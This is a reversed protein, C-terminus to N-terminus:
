DEGAVNLYENGVKKVMRRTIKFPKQLISELPLLETIDSIDGIQFEFAGFPNLAENRVGFCFRFEHQWSYEKGKRFLGINGSFGELDLYEVLGYGGQFYKSGYIYPNKSIADTICASLASANRILLMHSGFWLLRKDLWLEGNSEGPIRGTEDDALASFCFIMVNSADPIEITLFANNSVDFEKPENGDGIGLTFKHFYKGAPGGHIRGLIPELPDGRLGGRLENELKAFYALSNMYLLGHQMATLHELSGVKFLLWINRNPAYPAFMSLPDASLNTISFEIENM